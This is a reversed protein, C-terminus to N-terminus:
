WKTGVNQYEKPLDKYLSEIDEVPLRNHKISRISRALIKAHARSSTQNKLNSLYNAVCNTMHDLENM